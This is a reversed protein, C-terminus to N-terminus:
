SKLLPLLSSPVRGELLVIDGEKALAFIKEAIEKSNELLLMNEEKMEKEKAGRLLSSFEDSTTIIAFDCVEGIKRGIKVHVEHSASGLEILSPMVVIKKGKWLKLHELSAFVGTPNASYSSDLIEIGKKGKKLLMSSVNAPIDKLAEEIEKMSMGLKTAVATALLINEVNHRGILPLKAKAEEGDKKRMTFSVEDKTIVVDKTFFDKQTKTSCWVYNAFSPNWLQLWPGLEHLQKSDDNLVLVGNQPLSQVLEGGGEASFLNMRSGFVGLHQENVGTVIGYNPQVIDTLIKIGGRSYAGMECVFIEHEDTLNYLITHTIGMESNKHEPTKLVVFKKQLIHALFEKTSTKGYSGTIGIVKLNKLKKIKETARKIIRNRQFITYPQWLLVVLSGIVLSFVDFFLLALFLSDIFYLLTGALFISQVFFVSFILVATKKTVVPLIFTKTAVANVLLGTEGIYLFLLLTFAIGPEFFWLALLALKGAIFPHFFLRKGKTTKLYAFLRGIHYEKLQWLYLVFLLTRATRVYWFFSLLFIM